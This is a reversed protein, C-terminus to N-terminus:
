KSLTDSPTIYLLVSLCARDYIIVENSLEIHVGYLVAINNGDKMSARNSQDSNYLTCSHLLRM